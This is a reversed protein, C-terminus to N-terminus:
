WVARLEVRYARECCSKGLEPVTARLGRMQMVAARM